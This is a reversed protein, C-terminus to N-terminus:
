VEQFRLFQMVKFIGDKILFGQGLIGLIDNIEDELASFGIGPVIAQGVNGM